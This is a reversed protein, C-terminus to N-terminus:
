QHEETDPNTTTKIRQPPTPGFLSAALQELQAPDRGDLTPRSM